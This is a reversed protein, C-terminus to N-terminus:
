TLNIGDGHIINRLVHNLTHCYRPLCPGISHTVFQYIHDSLNVGTDDLEARIINRRISSSVFVHDIFSSQNLSDNYYTNCIGNCLFEGCHFVVYNSLVSDIDKIILIM